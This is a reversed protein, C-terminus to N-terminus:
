DSRTAHLPDVKTVRRAPLYAALAAAALLVAGSGLFSLPDAPSVGQVLGALVRRLALASLLGLGIGLATLRLTSGLFIRVVDGRQAGLAMRIGMERVRRAATYSVVAYVGVASLALAALAFGTIVMAEFRPRVLEQREQARLTRPTGLSMDADVTLLAQRLGEVADGPNGASRLLFYTFPRGWQRNSFYIEPRTPEGPVLPPVDRAVGVVTFTRDLEPLRVSRGVASEQPWALRALAENVVAVDGVDVGDAETFERGAVVPVGLTSFFGPGVDFWWASPQDGDDVRGEAVFATAGDGGGFLPGASATAVSSVGPVRAAQDEAERWMSFLQQKSDYESTNVFASMALLAGRDFGPDWATHRSYSRVLLGATALLLVSLALQAVVMVRRLRRAGRTEAGREGSKITRALDWATVRLAPLLAFAVTAAASLLGAFVLVRGSQGVEDLRPLPPAAALLSPLALGSLLLSVVMAASTLLLGEVLIGGILQSRAAGLAARVALERQRGVGRALLLNAVNACVIMLLVAASGLFALLIPRSDGVVVRQLTTLRLRWEDTVVPSGEAIQAYRADLASRARALTVGPALLGVARFGRWGASEPNRPDFHPPKWVQAGAIDLPAEFGAPLVGVVEHPESDIRLVSGIVSPDAGFRSSWFGHSLVVVKDDVPGHEDEEFLRGVHARVGLAGFFGPTGIGGRVGTSGGTEDQLTYSWSRGIGLELFHADGDRLGEVVEPAAVCGGGLRAHDECLMVIRGSEPYALPRFVIGDVVTFIATAASMGIALILLAPLTFGPSRVMSRVTRGLSRSLDDLPWGAGSGRPIGEPEDLGVPPSGIVRRLTYRTSLTVAQRWYAMRARLRGRDAVKDLFIEQLDGMVTERIGNDPLTLTLLAQALRPPTPEGNGNM